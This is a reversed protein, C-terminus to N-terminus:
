NLIILFHNNLININTNDNEVDINIEIIQQKNFPHVFYNEWTIRDKPEKVLLKSILDDLLKINTKKLNLDKNYNLYEDLNNFPFEKFYLYYLILGISWLDSKSNGENKYVEPGNYYLTGVFKSYQSNSEYSKSLGYDTLKIDFDNEDTYKILINEPKLDRHIIKKEQMLKIVENLQSIIKLITILDMNIKKMKVLSNLDGDCLEMVIYYYDKDEISDIYEVSYKSKMVKLINIENKINIVNEKYEKEIKKIAYHNNEEDRARYCIGYGGKSIKEELIYRGIRNSM